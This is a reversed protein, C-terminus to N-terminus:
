DISEMSRQHSFKRSVITLLTLVAIFVVSVAGLEGLSGEQWLQWIFISFVISKPTWLIAAMSMVKVSLILVYLGGGVLSPLMLPVLIKFFKSTFGAGSVEAAEELEKHVQVLGAHTFRTGYPLYRVVYALFLIWITGYIPNPFSLFLIMIAVGMVISPMAYPLFAVTDLLGHGRPRLRIVIWSIALSVLMVVVATGVALLVTNQMMPWLDTREFATRFNELNLKPILKLAPPRYFPLFSAWLLIVFPLLVAAIFYFVIFSLGAFRWKGLDILRPRFGKGTITTYREARSISKQYLFLGLLTFVVLAMSYAFGLGYDPPFHERVALYINTSFVIVGSRLGMLAPVEFAELGRVLQLIGVGAIAPMILRLTVATITKFQSAGAALSAEELSPDMRRLVGGLLLFTLPAMSIGEVWAMSYINYPNFIPGAAGLWAALTNLLGIRPSLLLIWAIGKLVSPMILPILMLSYATNRLPVNTREVLFAITGGFISAVLMSGLAFVFSDRLMSYTRPDGYARAFNNLTLGSLGFGIEGISITRFSNLLLLLLPVLILVALPALLAWLFWRSDTYHWTVAKMVKGISVALPAPPRM